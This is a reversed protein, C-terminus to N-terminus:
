VLKLLYTIKAKWDIERIPLYDEMILM